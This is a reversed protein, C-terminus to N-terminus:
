QQVPEKQVQTALYEDIASDIRGFDREIYKKIKSVIGKAYEELSEVEDITESSLKKSYLTSWQVASSKVGLKAKFFSLLKKRAEADEARGLVIKLHVSNNRLQIEGIVIDKGKWGNGPVLNSLERMKATRFSLYSKNSRGVISVELAASNDELWASILGNLESLTDPRNEYIYDLVRKHKQYVRNALSELESQGVVFKELLSKYHQLLLEAEASVRDLKLITRISNIITSYSLPVWSDDGQPPDGQPTLFVFLKQYDPFDTEVGERYKLLQGDSESADVKNEICIAYKMGSDGHNLILLDINKFERRVETSDHTALEFSVLDFEPDGATDAISSLVDRVLVKLAVDGQGLLSSPLLLESLFNSHRIEQSRLGVLEFINAAGLGEELDRLEPSQLLEALQKRITRERTCNDQVASDAM